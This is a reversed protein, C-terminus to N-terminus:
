CLNSAADNVKLEVYDGTYRSRASINLLVKDVRTKLDKPYRELLEEIAIRNESDKKAEEPSLFITVLSKNNIEREKM